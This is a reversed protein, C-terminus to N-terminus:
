LIGDLSQVIKTPRFDEGLCKDVWPNQARNVWITSLNSTSAGTIDFPNGSVLWVDGPSDTKGVFELLGKYIAPSPKYRKISDALYFNTLSPLLSSSALASHIMKETGNSFIVIQINPDNALATITKTADAFSPLHTYAEMLASIAEEELTVDMESAAHRLSRRTIQDFPEYIEMSNLRWTYELQYRRWLASMQKAFPEDLGAWTQLSSSISSTDLITGYVDFALVKKAM